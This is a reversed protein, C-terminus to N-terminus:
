ARRIWTVVAINKAKDVIQVTFKYGSNKAVKIIHQVAKDDNVVRFSSTKPLTM